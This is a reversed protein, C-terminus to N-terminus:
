PGHESAPDCRWNRRSACLRYPVSVARALQDMRARHLRWIGFSAVLINLALATPKMVSPAIGCLAMAAICGSAGAHGVATYITAALFILAAVFLRDEGFCGSIFGSAYGLAALTSKGPVM